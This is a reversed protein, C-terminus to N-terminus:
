FAEKGGISQLKALERLGNKITKQFKAEEMSIEDIIVAENNKVSEYVNEYLRIFDRAVQALCADEHGMKHAERIARRLLRRLVYGRDTNSPKVGDAIMHVATRLHDAIIRAGREIYKAEGVIRKIHELTNEFLDTEYVTKKGNIVALTRELGMGTDVNKAPLLELTGDAKKNFQMFVNNWIEM